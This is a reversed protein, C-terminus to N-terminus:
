YLLVMGHISVFGATPQEVQLAPSAPSEPKIGPDPVAGPSPCPLRSWDVQRSFEMSLPAEHAVTWPTVFIQVHSPLPAHVCPQKFNLM